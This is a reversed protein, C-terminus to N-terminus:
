EPASRRDDASRLLDHAPVGLARAILRLRYITVDLLGREIKSLQGKDTVSMEALAILGIGREVRKSRIAKGLRKRFLSM